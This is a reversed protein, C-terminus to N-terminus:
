SARARRGATRGSPPPPSRAPGATLGGSGWAAEPVEPSPATTDTTETSM